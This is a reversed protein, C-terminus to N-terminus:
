QNLSRQYETIKDRVSERAETFVNSSVVPLNNILFKGTQPPINEIDLMGVPKMLNIVDSVYRETIGIVPVFTGTGRFGYKTLSEFPSAYMGGYSSQGFKGATWALLRMVDQADSDGGFLEGLTVQEDEPAYPNVVGSFSERTRQFQEEGLAANVPIAYIDRMIDLTTYTAVSFGIGAFVRWLTSIADIPFEAIAQKPNAVGLKRLADENGTRIYKMLLPMQIKSIQQTGDEATAFRAIWDNMPDLLRKRTVQMGVNYTFSAFQALTRGLQSNWAEPRMAKNTGHYTETAFHWMREMIDAYAPDFDNLSARENNKLREIFNRVQQEQEIFYDVEKMTRGTGDPAVVDKTRSVGLNELKDYITKWNYIKGDFAKYTQDLGIGAEQMERAVRAYHSAEAMFAFANQGTNMSNVGHFSDTLLRTGRGGAGVDVGILKLFSKEFSFDSITDAAKQSVKQMHGMLSGHEGTPDTVSMDFRFSLDKEKIVNADILMEEFERLGQYPLAEEGVGFAQKMARGSTFVQTTILNQFWDLYKFGYAYRMYNLNRFTQLGSATAKRKAIFEEAERPSKGALESFIGWQNHFVKNARTTITQIQDESFGTNKMAAAMPQLYQNYFDEAEYIGYDLAHLRYGTDVSYKKWAAHPDTIAWHQPLNFKRPNELFKSRRMAPDLMVTNYFSKFNETNAIDFINFSQGELKPDFQEPQRVRFVTNGESNVEEVIFGKDKLRQPTMSGALYEDFQRQIDENSENVIARIKLQADDISDFEKLSIKLNDENFGILGRADGVDNVARWEELMKYYAWQEPNDIGQERAMDVYRQRQLGVKDHDVMQPFYKGRLDTFRSRNNQVKALRQLVASEKKAIRLLHRKAPDLISSFDRYGKEPHNDVWDSVIDILDRHTYNITQNGSKIEYSSGKLPQQQLRALNRKLEARISRLFRNAVQNYAHQYTTIYNVMDENQLLKRDIAEYLRGNEGNYANEVNKALKSGAFGSRGQKVVGRNILRWVSDNFLKQANQEGIDEGLMERVFAPGRETHFSDFAGRGYGYTVNGNADVREIDENFHKTAISRIRSPQQNADLIFDNVKDFITNSRNGTVTKIRESARKLMQTGAQTLSSNKFWDLADEGGKIAKSAGQWFKNAASVDAGDTPDFHVDMEYLDRFKFRQGDLEITKAAVNDVLNRPLNGEVKGKLYGGVKTRVRKMAIGGAGLAMAGLLVLSVGDLGAKNMPDEPDGPGEESIDEMAYATAALGALSLSGGISEWNIRKGTKGRGADLGEQTVKFRHFAQDPSSYVNKPDGKAYTVEAGYRKRIINPLTNDYYQILGGSKPGERTFTMFDEVIPFTRQLLEDSEYIEETAKWLLWDDSPGIRIGEDIQKGRLIGAEGVREWPGMKGRLEYEINSIKRLVANPSFEPYAEVIDRLERNQIENLFTDRSYKKGEFLIEDISKTLVREAEERVQEINKVDIYKGRTQEEKQIETARQFIRQRSRERLALTEPDDGYRAAQMHGRTIYFEGDSEKIAQEVFDDLVATQLDRGVDGTVGFKPNKGQLANDLQLEDLLLRGDPSKQYRGWAVLPYSLKEERELSLGERIEETRRRAVDEDVFEHLVGHRTVLSRSQEDLNLGIVQMDKSRERGPMNGRKPYIVGTDSFGTSWNSYEAGKMGVRNPFQVMEGEIEPIIESAKRTKETVDALLKFDDDPVGADKLRNFMASETDTLLEQKPKGTDLDIKGWWDFQDFTKKFKSDLGNYAGKIKFQGTMSRILVGGMGLAGIAMAVKAATTLEGNQDIGVGGALTLGPIALWAFSNVHGQNTKSFRPLYELPNLPANEVQLIVHPQRQDVKSGVPKKYMRAQENPAVLRYIRNGTRPEFTEVADVNHRFIKTPTLIQETPTGKIVQKKGATDTLTRGFWEDYEVREPNQVNLVYRGYPKEVYGMEGSPLEIPNFRRLQGDPRITVNPNVFAWETNYMLKGNQDAVFRTPFSKINNKRGIAYFPLGGDVPDVRVVLGKSNKIKKVNGNEDLISEADFRRIPVKESGGGRTKQLKAIDRINGVGLEEALSLAYERGTQGKRKPRAEKFRENAQEWSRFETVDEAGEDILRQPEDVNKLGALMDAADALRQKISEPLDQFAQDRIAQMRENSVRARVLEDTTGEGFDLARNYDLYFQQLDTDGLFNEHILKEMADKNMGMGRLMQIDATANDNPGGKLANQLRTQHFDFVQQLDDPEVGEEQLERMRQEYDARRVDVQGPMPIAGEEAIQESTRLDLVPLQESQSTRLEEGTEQGFEDFERGEPTAEGATERSVIEPPSPDLGEVGRIESYVRETGDDWAVKWGQPSFGTVVGERGESRIATQNVSQLTEIVRSIKDIDENNQIDLGFKRIHTDVMRDFEDVQGDLQKLRSALDYRWLGADAQFVKYQGDGAPVIHSGPYRKSVITAETRDLTSRGALGLPTVDNTMVPHDELMQAFRRTNFTEGEGVFERVNRAMNDMFDNYIEDVQRNIQEGSLRASGGYKENADEVIQRVDQRFTQMFENSDQVFKAAVDAQTPQVGEDYYQAGPAAMRAYKAASQSIDGIPINDVNNRVNYVFRQIDPFLYKRAGTVRPTESDKYYASEVEPKYRGTEPDFELGLKPKGRMKGWSYDHALKGVGQFADFLVGLMEGGLFDTAWRGLSGSTRYMREADWKDEEKLGLVADQVIIDAFMAMSYEPDTFTEVAGAGITFKPPIAYPRRTMVASYTNKLSQMANSRSGKAMNYFTKFNQMKRVAAFQNMAEATMSLRGVLDGAKKIATYGAANMGYLYGLLTGGATGLETASFQGLVPETFEQLSGAYIDRSKHRQQHFWELKEPDDTFMQMFKEGWGGVIGGYAEPVIDNFGVIAGAVTNYLSNPVKETFGTINGGEDIIPQKEKSFIEVNKMIQGPITYGWAGLDEVTLDKRRVDRRRQMQPEVLIKDGEQRVIGGQNYEHIKMGDVLVKLHQNQPDQLASYSLEYVGTGQETEKYGTANAALTSILHLQGGETNVIRDVTDYAFEKYSLDTNGQHKNYEFAKTLDVPKLQEVPEDGQDSINLTFKEDRGQARLNNNIFNELRKQPSKTKLNEETYYTQATLPNYDKPQKEIEKRPTFTLGGTRRVQQGEETDEVQQEGGIYDKAYEFPNEQSYQPSREFRQFATTVRNDQVKADPIYHQYINIFDTLAESGFRNYVAFAKAYEDPNENIDFAGQNASKGMANTFEELKDSIIQKRFNENNEVLSQVVEGSINNTKIEDESFYENYRGPNSKIVEEVGSIKWRDDETVLSAHHDVISQKVSKGDYSIQSLSRYMDRQLTTRYQKREEEPTDESNWWNKFGDQSDELRASIIRDTLETRLGKNDRMHLLLWNDNTFKYEPMLEKLASVYQYRGDNPPTDSPDTTEAKTSRLSNFQSLSEASVESNASTNEAQDGNAM